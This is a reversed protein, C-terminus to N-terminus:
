KENEGGKIKALRLQISENKEQTSLHSYEKWLKEVEPSRRETREHQLLRNREADFLYFRNRDTQFFKRNFEEPYPGPGVPPAPRRAAPQPPQYTRFIEPAPPAPTREPPPPDYARVTQTEPSRGVKPKRRKRDEYALLLRDGFIVLTGGAFLTTPNVRKGTALFYRTSLDEYRKLDKESLSYRSYDQGSLASCLRSFVSDVGFAWLQAQLEADHEGLINKEPERGPVGEGEETKESRFLSDPDIDSVQFLEKIDRPDIDPANAQEAESPTDELLDLISTGQDEEQTSLEPPPNYHKMIFLNKIFICFFRKAPQSGYLVAM